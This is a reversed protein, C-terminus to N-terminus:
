SKSKLTLPNRVNYTSYHMSGWGRVIAPVQNWRSSSSPYPGDRVDKGGVVSMMVARVETAGAEAGAELQPGISSLFQDKILTGYDSM